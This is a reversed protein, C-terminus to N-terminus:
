CVCAAPGYGGSPSQASRALSSEASSSYTCFTTPLDSDSMRSAIGTPERNQMRAWWMRKADNRSWVEAWCRRPACAERSPVSVELL